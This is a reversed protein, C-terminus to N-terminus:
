FFKVGNFKLLHDLFEMEVMPYVSSNSCGLQERSRWLLFSKPLFWRWRPITTSLHINNCGYHQVKKDYLSSWELFIHYIKLPLMDCQVQDIFMGISYTLLCRKRDKLNTNNVWAVKYPSPHPETKLRLKKCANESVVNTCSGWDIVMSCLQKNCCVKTQFISSQHWDEKM